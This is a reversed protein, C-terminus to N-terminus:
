EVISRFEIPLNQKTIIKPNNIDFPVGETLIKQKLKETEIYEISGKEPSKYIVKCLGEKNESVQGLIYKEYTELYLQKNKYQVVSVVEGYNKWYFYMSVGGFEQVKFRAPCKDPFSYAIHIEPLKYQLNKKSLKKNLSCISYPLFTADAKPAIQGKRYICDIITAGSSSTKLTYYTKVGITDANGYHAIAPRDGIYRLRFLQETVGAKSFKIDNYIAEHKKNYVRLSDDAMVEYTYGNKKLTVNGAVSNIPILIVFVFLVLKYM